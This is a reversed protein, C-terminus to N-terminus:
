HLAVKLLSYIAPMWIEIDTGVPRTACISDGEKRLADLQEPSVHAAPVKDIGLEAVKDLFIHMRDLFDPTWKKEHLHKNLVAIKPEISKLLWGKLAGKKNNIIGTLSDILKSIGNYTEEMEPTVVIEAPRGPQAMGHGGFAGHMPAGSARMGPTGGHEMMGQTNGGPFPTGFRSGHASTPFPTSNGTGQGSMLGSSTRMPMSGGPMANSNMAGSSMNSPMTPMTPMFPKNMTGSNMNSNMSPMTPMFPKNMSGSSMSSPMSPMANSNMTPMSPMAGSSMTGSMSPMASKNMAPMSPMRPTSVGMPKQPPISSNQFPMASPMGQPTYVNPASYGMASSPTQVKNLPNESVPTKAFSIKPGVRGGISPTAATSVPSPSANQTYFSKSHLESQNGRPPMGPMTQRYSAPQQPTQFVGPSYIGRNAPNNGMGSAASSNMSNFPMASSPKQQNTHPPFMNMGMSMKNMQQHPQMDQKKQAQHSPLGLEAAVEEASKQDLSKIFTLVREKEGKKVLHKLYEVAHKDLSIKANMVSTARELISFVKEFNNIFKVSEFVTKAKEAKKEEIEQYKQVDKSILYCIKATEPSSKELCEAVAKVKPIFEEDTCHSGLIKVIVTWDVNNKILGSYDGSLISMVLLFSSSAGPASLIRNKERKLVSEGDCLAILAALHANEKLALSFASSFDGRILKETIPDSEDIKIETEQVEETHELIPSKEESSNLIKLIERRPHEKEYADLIKWEYSTKDVNEIWKRLRPGKGESVFLGHSTFCMGPGQKQWKPVKDLFPSRANLSTLTDFVVRGNYSSYAIMDPNEPSFAFDFTSDHVIVGRKKYTNADWAIVSSDRGCTVILSPDHRSWKCNLIGETHGELRPTGRSIRLDYLIVSNQASSSVALQASSPNPDWQLSTIESKSFYPDAIRTVESKGRLDLISVMGDITGVAMIQPMNKNWQLCSIGEFKTTIGPSLPKDLTRLNWLMIKGSYSGTTLVPMGGAFDIGLIDDDTKVHNKFILEKPEEKNGELLSTADWLTVNGADLGGAVFIRDGYMGWELRNFRTPVTKSFLIEETDTSRIQLVSNSSFDSNLIKAKTGLAALSGVPSFSVLSTTEIKM